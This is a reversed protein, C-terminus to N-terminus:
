LNVSLPLRLAGAQRQRSTTNMDGWDSRATVHWVGCRAIGIRASHGTLPFRVLLYMSKHDGPHGPRLEAAGVLEAAEPYGDVVAPVVVVGTLGDLAVDHIGIGLEALETRPHALAPLAGAGDHEAVAVDVDLRRVGERVCRM